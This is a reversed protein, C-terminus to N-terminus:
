MEEMNKTTIDMQDYDTFLTYQGNFYMESTGLPGMRNKSCCIEVKGENGIVNPHYYEDRYPFFVTTADQELSGSARLDALMPRKNSREEVKRNLQALVIAPIDLKKCVQKISKLMETIESNENNGKSCSLMQIYDVIILDVGGQQYSCKISQSVLHEISSIKDDILLKQNPGTYYSLVKEYKELKNVLPMDTLDKLPTFTKMSVIKSILEDKSMEASFFIVRKNQRAVKDGIALALSTNHTVTFDELLFLGDGDLEFGYYEDFNDKIVKIGTVSVNRPSLYKRCKKRNIKTPISNINGTIKIRFAFGKYGTSKISTSKMKVSARFGLSNALFKIQYAYKERVTVVEITCCKNDVYGDGDVIGALLDLRNKKNNILYDDPIHKNNIVNIKRLKEQMTINEDGKGKIRHSVCRNKNNYTVFSRGTKEAYKKMTEIVEKDPTTVVSSKSTGDSLWIGLFYPDITLPKENFNVDVFYGKYNSKWNESKKLYDKISINLIDGNKHKGLTRSRKLSLIHEKNVRYSIGKCQKVIYMEGFGKGLSLVNRPKSDPGMLKDGVQVDEVKKFSGDYMIVKTTKGLCKGMGPRAAIIYINHPMLKAYRDLARFGTSIGEDYFDQGKSISEKYKSITNEIINPVSSVDKSIKHDLKNSFDFIKSQIDEISKGSKVSTIVTKGFIASERLKWKEEVINIHYRVNASSVVVEAIDIVTQKYEDIKHGKSSIKNILTIMDIAIDSKLMDICTEYIVRHKNNYFYEPKLDLYIEPLIQPEIIIASLIASEANYDSIKNIDVIDNWTIGTNM